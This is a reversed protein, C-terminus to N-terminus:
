LLGNGSCPIPVVPLRLKRMNKFARVRGHIIGWITAKERKKLKKIETKRPSLLLAAANSTRNGRNAKATQARFTYTMLILACSRSDAPQAPCASTTSPGAPIEPLAAM